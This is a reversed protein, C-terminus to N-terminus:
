MSNSLCMSKQRMKCTFRSIGSQISSPSMSVLSQRREADAWLELWDVLRLGGAVAGILGGVSSSFIAITQRTREGTPASGRGLRRPCIGCPDRNPQCLGRCPACVFSSHNEKLAACRRLPRQWGLGQPAPSFVAVEADTRSSIDVYEKM